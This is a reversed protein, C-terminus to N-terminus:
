SRWSSCRRGLPTPRRCCCRARMAPGCASSPGPPPPGTPSRPTVSPSARPCGPPAPRTSSPPRAGGQPRPGSPGAGAEALIESATVVRPAGADRALPELGDAVIARCAGSGALIHRLRDVPLQPDLLVLPSGGYVIAVALALAAASGGLVAVPRPAADVGVGGACLRGLEAYSVSAGSADRVAVRGAGGGLGVLVADFQDCLPAAAFPDPVPVAPRTGESAASHGTGSQDLARM